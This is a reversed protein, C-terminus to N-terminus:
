IMFYRVFFNMIYSGKTFESIISAYQADLFGQTTLLNLVMCVVWLIVAGKILGLLFGLFGDLSSILPLKVIAKILLGVIWLVLASVAFIGLVAVAMSITRALPEAIAQAFDYLEAESLSFALEFREQLEALDAGCNELLQTFEEPLTTFLSGIDYLGSSKVALNKIMEFVYDTAKTFVFTDYLWDGLLSGFMFALVFSGVLTVTSWVSEVFGRKAAVIVIIVFLSALVFDLILGM